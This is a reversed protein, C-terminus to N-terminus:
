KQQDKTIEKGLCSVSENFRYHSKLEGEIEFGLRKYFNITTKESEAISIEIKATDFLKESIAEKIKEDAANILASGIGQKQYEKSVAIHNYKWVFHKGNLDESMKRLLIGGVVKEEIKAVLITNKQNHDELYDLIEEESKQFINHKTFAEKYIPILEQLDEKNAQKINM